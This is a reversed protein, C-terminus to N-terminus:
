TLRSKKFYITLSDGYYKDPFYQVENVSEMKKFRSIVEKGIDFEKPHAVKNSHLNRCKDLRIEKAISKEAIQYLEELMENSFSFVFFTLADLNLTEIHKISNLSRGTIKIEKLNVMGDIGKLSICGEVSLFEVSDLYKVFAISKVEEGLQLKKLSPLDNLGTMKIENYGRGSFGSNISLKTLSKNGNLVTVNEINPADIILESSNLDKLYSLDLTKEKRIRM